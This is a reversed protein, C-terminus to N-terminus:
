SATVFYMPGMQRIFVKSFGARNMYGRIQRRSYFFVPCHRLRLRILRPLTRWSWLVPFSLMVKEETVERMRNLAVTPEKIYDFLGMGITIDFPYNSTYKCIDCSVFETTRDLKADKARKKCIEIMRDAVDLGVVKKAGRRALELSYLGTGCGVDLFTRGVVPESQKLTYAFRDYMAKRLLKDM